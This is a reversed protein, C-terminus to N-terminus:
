QLTKVLKAVPISAAFKKIEDETSNDAKLTLLSSNIPLQIEYSTKNTQSDTNKQLLAKYGELKIVKQDGSNGVFPLSLIANISSMLPSNGIIDVAATKDGSGYDRHIVIGAFGSAGSVNDNPTNSPLAELKTPLLKLIDKGAIIDLERLMQQMAFRADELKNASYSSRAASLQKNFEQGSASLGIVLFFLTQIFTKM